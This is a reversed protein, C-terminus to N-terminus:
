PAKMLLFEQGDRVGAGMKVMLGEVLTRALDDLSKAGMVELVSVESGLLRQRCWNRLEIAVLSDMGLAQALTQGHQDCSMRQEVDEVSRMLFGALTKALEHSLIAISEPEVLVRPSDHVRAILAGLAGSNSDSGDGMGPSSHAFELGNLESELNRYQAMRVDRKWICRNGPTNLPRTMRLGIGLQSSSIFTYNDIPSGKDAYEAFGRPRSSRMALELADLLMQEGLVPVGTARFTELIAQNQSVYGVDDMPGIDIVSCPLGLNHRFQTFADLFTNASAYNAQGWQGVLGSFSSFLVFFDLDHEADALVEHLNYTGRVKPAAVAMWDDHTMQPFGSDRLVMSMQLVGAIPICLRARVDRVVRKVDELSVVSGAVIHASCGMAALEQVLTDHGLNAEGGSRSLYVLNKAGQEAMWTSISRGLGGLGGILLYAADPRLSFGPRISTTHLPPEGAADAMRVVIKGIHDGKQMFRFADQIHTADFTQALPIPRIKGHEHLHMCKELLRFFHGLTLAEMNRVLHGM